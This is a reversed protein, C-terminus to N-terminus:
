NAYHDTSTQILKEIKIPTYASYQPHPKKLNPVFKKIAVKANTNKASLDEVDM